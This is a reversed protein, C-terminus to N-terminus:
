LQKMEWRFIRDSGSIARLILVAGTEEPLVPQSFTLTGRRHHGGAPTGEWSPDGYSGGQDGTLQSIKSVDFDLNVSHTDFVLEFIAPQGVTLQKPTVQVTVNSRTDEKTSFQKIAINNYQKNKPQYTSKNFVKIWTAIIAFSVALALFITKATVIM